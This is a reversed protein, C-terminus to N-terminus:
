HGPDLVIVGAPVRYGPADMLPQLTKRADVSHIYPLGNVIQPAFGLWYELGTCQGIRSAVRLALTGESIRFIYSPHPNAPVMVPKGLGNLQGWSELPIWTNVWNTPWGSSVPPLPLPAPTAVDLDDAVEVTSLPPPTRPPTQCGVIALLVLVVVRARVPPIRQGFPKRM